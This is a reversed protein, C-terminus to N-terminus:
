REGFEFSGDRFRYPKKIDGRNIFRVHQGDGTVAGNDLCFLIHYHGDVKAPHRIAVKFAGDTAIRAAHSQSWYMNDPKGLDDLVVVTHAPPDSFVKGSLTVCDNTSDYASKYDLVKLSAPRFSGFNTASFIPHKWLMAASAEDLYVQDPKPWKKAVYLTTVPGMLSNGLGLEPDPGIHPLGFAHGLEHIMGKLFIQGNFDEVLSVNSNVDGALTDYNVM